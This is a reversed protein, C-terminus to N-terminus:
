RGRSRRHLKFNSALSISHFALNLPHPSWQFPSSKNGAVAHTHTAANVRVHCNEVYLRGTFPRTLKTRRAVILQRSAPFAIIGRASPAPPLRLALLATHRQCPPAVQWFGRRVSAGRHTPNPTPTGSSNEPRASATRCITMGVDLVKDLM